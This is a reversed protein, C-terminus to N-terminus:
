CSFRIERRCHEVERGVDKVGGEDGRVCAVLVAAFQRSQQKRCHLAHVEIMIMM